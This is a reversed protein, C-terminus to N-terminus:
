IFEHNYKPKYNRIVSDPIDDDPVEMDPGVYSDDYPVTDNIRLGSPTGKEIVPINSRTRGM